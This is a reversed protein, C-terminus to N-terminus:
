QMLFLDSLMAIQRRTACDNLVRWGKFFRTLDHMQMRLCYFFMNVEVVQLDVLRYKFSLFQYNSKLRLKGFFGM